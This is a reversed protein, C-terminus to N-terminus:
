YWSGICSAYVDIGWEEGSALALRGASTTIEKSVRWARARAGELGETPGLGDVISGTAKVGAGFVWSTEHFHPNIATFDKSDSADSDSARLVRDFMSLPAACIGYATVTGVGNGAHVDLSSLLPSPVVEDVFAENSLSILRYGTGYLVEGPDCGATGPGSVREPDLWDTCIAIAHVAWPGVKGPRARGFATVGSLDSAPVIGTLAVQGGGDEIWGGSGIAKKGQPCSVTVDKDESTDYASIEEHYGQAAQVPGATVMVLAFAAVVGGTLIRM